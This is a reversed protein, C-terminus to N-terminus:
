RTGRPLPQGQTHEQPPESVPTGPVFRPQPGLPRANKEVTITALYTYSYTYTYTHLIHIHIAIYRETSGHLYGSVHTCVRTCDLKVGHQWSVWTVKCGAIRRPGCAPCRPTQPPVRELGHPGGPGRLLGKKGWRQAWVWDWGSREDSPLLLSPASGRGEWSRLCM